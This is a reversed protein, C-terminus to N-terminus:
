KYYMCPDAKSREYGMDYMCELIERWFAMAAQKTGYIAKKLLLVVYEVNWKNRGKKGHQIIQGSSNKKTKEEEDKKIRRKFKEFYKEFGQPVEM